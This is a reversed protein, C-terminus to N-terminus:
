EDIFKPFVRKYLYLCVTDHNKIVNNFMAKLYGHTGLPEKIHGTLGYKTSLEVPKFWRIDEPDYFMDRITAKRKNCKFPQGTLVIRKLIIRDPDPGLLSGTAVM